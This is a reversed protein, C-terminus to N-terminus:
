CQSFIDCSCFIRWILKNLSAMTVCMSYLYKTDVGMFGFYARKTHKRSYLLFYLFGPLQIEQKPANYLWQLSVIVPLTFPFFWVSGTCQHVSVTRCTTHYCEFSWWSARDLPQQLAVQLLLFGFLLTLSHIASVWLSWVPVLSRYMICACVIDPGGSAPRSPRGLGGWKRPM